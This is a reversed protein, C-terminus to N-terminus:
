QLFMLMALDIVDDRWNPIRGFPSFCLRSFFGREHIELGLLVVIRSSHRMLDYLM